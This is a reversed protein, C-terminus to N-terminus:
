PARVALAWFQGSNNALWLTRTVPNWAAGSMNVANFEPDVSTLKVAQSTPEAPWPSAGMAVSVSRVAAWAAFWLLRSMDFLLFFRARFTSRL